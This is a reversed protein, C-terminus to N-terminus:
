IYKKIKPNTSSAAEAAAATCEQPPVVKVGSQEQYEPPESGFREGSLRQLWVPSGLGIGLYTKNLFTM